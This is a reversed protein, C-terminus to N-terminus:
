VNESSKLRKPPASDNVSPLSDRDGRRVQISSATSPVARSM